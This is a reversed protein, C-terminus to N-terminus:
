FAFYLIFLISLIILVPNLDKFKGTLIKLLVYSLIGLILGNAVSYTFPMAIITVFAPLAEAIDKFNIKLIPEMMLFGVIVLAPATAASPIIGALPWLIISLLFLLGTVLSVAGTKGGEAIGAASEIYTTITSTGCLAGAITGVADSVLAREAGEFSGDEKLINLKSALGSITGVTDFMDVFTFTFIISFFGWKLAGLIDLSLFTKSFEGWNPLAIINGTFHTIYEGNSGKVFAGVITTIIIGLLINGKVNLAMLLAIVIIGFISLLTEPTKLSGLTVLTADSKVVIGASRLGILAIFLGIGVSTALKINLPISQIIWKRVPLISLILFIIGDIFVAGLAVQWPLGFGHCVSYAFYANLGMGPALAFPLKAYLGMTLTAIGAGIATAMLVASKPMGADGLINPNVFLIYAMTVFTTLGAIIENSWSTGKERFGFYKALAGFM